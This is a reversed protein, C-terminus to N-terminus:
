ALADQPAVPTAPEEPQPVTAPEEPEAPTVPAPAIPTAPEAPPATEPAPEPLGPDVPEAPVRVVPAPAVNPTSRQLPDAAARAGCEITLGILPEAALASEIM